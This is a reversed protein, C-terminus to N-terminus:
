FSFTLSTSLGTNPLAGSGTMSGPRTFYAADIQLFLLKIGAGFTLYGQNFGARLDVLSLFRLDAGAHLGLLPSSPTQGFSYHYDVEFRPDVISATRGVEPHYAVGMTFNMPVEYVSSVPTGYPLSKGSTISSLVSQLTGSSYYFQTGGIDRLSLGVTFPKLDWLLGLDLGIGFGYLVPISFGGMGNAFNVLDVMPVAPAHIRLMPRLTGGVSLNSTLPVGLGVLFGLTNTADALQGTAQTSDAYVDSVDFLGIGIGKGSYGLGFTLNGGFGNSAITPSLGALAETPNTSLEGLYPRVTRGPLFYMTPSVGLATFSSPASALGAPNVFLSSLGQPHAVGVGGSGVMAPVLPSFEPEAVTTQAHAAVAVLVLIVCSVLSKKM